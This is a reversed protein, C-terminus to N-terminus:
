KSIGQIQKVLTRYYFYSYQSFHVIYQYVYIKTTRLIWMFLKLFFISYIYTDLVPCM